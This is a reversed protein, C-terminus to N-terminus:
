NRDGIWSQILDTALKKPYLVTTGPPGVTVEADFADGLESCNNAAQASLCALRVIGGARVSPSTSRSVIQHKKRRPM